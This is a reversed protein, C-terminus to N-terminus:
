KKLYDVIKQFEQLSGDRKLENARLSIINVNGPIYGKTNDYRDLSASNAQQRGIQSYQLEIGLVPCWIPHVGLDEKTISFEIGKLKARKNAGRLLSGIPDKLRREVDYQRM